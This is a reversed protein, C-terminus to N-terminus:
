SLLSIDAMLDAGRIPPILGLKVASGGVVVSPRIPNALKAVQKVIENVGYYQAPLAVSILLLKTRTTKILKLLHAADYQTDLITAVKGKSALWLAIIRLGLTHINGPANMLLIASGSTSNPPASLQMKTSVVEIVQECFLKVMGNVHLGEIPDSAVIRGGVKEIRATVQSALKGLVDAWIHRTDLYDCNRESDHGILKYANRISGFHAIYVHHSPLGVTRNIIAPSLRGEKLLTRRLRALM